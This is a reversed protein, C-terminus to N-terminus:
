EKEGRDLGYELEDMAHQRSEYVRETVAACFANWPTFNPDFVNVVNTSTGDCWQVLMGSDKRYQIKDVELTLEEEEDEDDCDVCECDDDEEDEEDDDAEESDDLISMFDSFAKVFDNIAKDEDDEKPKRTEQKEKSEKEEKELRKSAEDLVGMLKDIEEENMAAIAGIAMSGVLSALDFSAIDFSENNDFFKEFM